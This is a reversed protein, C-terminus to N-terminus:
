GCFFGKYDDFDLAWFMAGALDQDKIYRAKIRLSVVDDYGVWENPSYAYPIAQEYNREVIWDEKMKECVEYYSLIGPTGTYKGKSGPGTSSAGLNKDEAYTFSRGYLALGVLLKEKPCGQSLWYRVAWGVNLKTQNGVEEKRAYLPAHHGLFDEWSGHFDYAMLNIYDLYKSIKDIEYGDIITQYGAGVAATLILGHPIFAKKLEKVLATFLVKDNPSSGERSGPYEWDLDLGDFRYKKVFEVANRVFNSRMNDDAVMKSFPGSGVNWGGIAISIKVNPNQNKLNITRDYMGPLWSTSLDNWEFPVIKDGELKAFAFIVMDCLNVDVDEPQFKGDGQRYQAWNTYYCVVLKRGNRNPNIEIQQIEEDEEEPDPEIQINETTTTTTTTTTRTTTSQTTTTASTPSSKTILNTISDPSLRMISAGQYLCLYYDKCNTSLDPYFGDGNPCPNNQSSTTVIQTTLKMNDTHLENKVANILPFKGENCFTGNFDDLDLAWFMAGGLDLDLIFKSKIKLSEIDDYGVWEISSFAYPVKQEENREIIWGNKQKECIEYYSLMGRSLTYPGLGGPGLNSAGLTTNQFYRFTRGYLALGLLLKQKPCGQKLWNKVTWKVNLKTQDENEDSRAYLATHHGLIEEW